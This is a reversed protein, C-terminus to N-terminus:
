RCKMYGNQWRNLADDSDTDYSCVSRWSLEGDITPNIYDERRATINYLEGIKEEGEEQKVPQTYRDGETLDLPTTLKLSDLEFTM